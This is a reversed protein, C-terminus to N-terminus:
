AGVAAILVNWILRRSETSSRYAAALVRLEVPEFSSHAQPGEEPGLRLESASLCKFGRVTACTAADSICCAHVAFMAKVYCCSLKSIIGLSPSLGRSM